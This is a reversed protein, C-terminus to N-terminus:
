GRGWERDDGGMCSHGQAPVAASHVLLAGLALSRSSISFASSVHWSNDQSTKLPLFSSNLLQLSVCRPQDHEREERRGKTHPGKKQLHLRTSSTQAPSPATGGRCGEPLAWLSWSCGSGLTVHVSTHRSHWVALVQRRTGLGLLCCSPFPFLQFCLFSHFNASPKVMGQAARGQPGWCSFFLLPARGAGLEQVAGGPGPKSMVTGYSLRAFRIGSFGPWFCCM